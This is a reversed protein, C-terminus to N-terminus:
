QSSHLYANLTDELQELFIEIEPDEATLMKSAIALEQTLQLRLQEKTPVSPKFASNSTLRM